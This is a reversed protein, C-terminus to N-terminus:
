NKPSSNVKARCSQGKGLDGPRWGGFVLCGLTFKLFSQGGLYVLM